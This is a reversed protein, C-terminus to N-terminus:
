IRTDAGSGRVAPVAWVRQIDGRISEYTTAITTLFRDPVAAMPAPSPGRQGTRDGPPLDPSLDSRLRVVMPM